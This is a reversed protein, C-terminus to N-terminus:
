GDAHAALRRLVAREAEDLLDWSWDIAARLTRRREPAGRAGSDLLRFRDDLRDASEHVGMARVWFSTGAGSRRARGRSHIPRATNVRGSITSAISTLTSNRAAGYRPASRCVLLVSNSHIRSM